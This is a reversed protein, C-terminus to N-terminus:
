CLVMSPLNLTWSLFLPHRLVGSPMVSWCVLQARKLTRVSGLREVSSNGSWDIGCRRIGPDSMLCHCEGCTTPSRARTPGNVDGQGIM